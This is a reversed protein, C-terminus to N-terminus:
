VRHVQFVEGPEREGGTFKEDGETKTMADGNRGAYASSMMWTWIKAFLDPIM